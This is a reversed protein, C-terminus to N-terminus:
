KMILCMMTIDDYQDVGAAFSDIDMKVSEILEKASADKHSNLSKEIRDLGFYEGSSNMAESVGDTYVFVGSGKPLTITYDTYRSGEMAGCIFGHKDKYMRFFGDEGIVFPYEHGANAATIIGTSIELIGLWVTIFMNTDNGQVLEENAARLIESPKGGKLASNKLIEKGKMMFLAAPVGKGSVDAILMVLHDEDVFFFDYFDGAVEKAPKMRAYLDFESHEPFGDPLASMQIKAAIDMETALREKEASVHRIEQVSEYIESEMEAMTNRLDALEFASSADISGFFSTRESENVMDRDTYARAASALAQVPSIVMRDINQSLVVSLVVFILVLAPIVLAAYLLLEDTFHRINTDIAAIGMLEGSRAYIPYYDTASFGVLSTHAFSMFWYSDM